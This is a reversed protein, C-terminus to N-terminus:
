NFTQGSIEEAKGEGLKEEGGRGPNPPPQNKDKGRGPCSRRAPRTCKDLKTLSGGGRGRWGRGEKREM